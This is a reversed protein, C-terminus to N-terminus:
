IIYYIFKSGVNFYKSCEELNIFHIYYKNFVDIRINEDNKNNSRGVGFFTPPNIFLLFGNKNLLSDAM